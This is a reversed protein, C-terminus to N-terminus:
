ATSKDSARQPGSGMSKNESCASRYAEEISATAPVAKPQRTPDQGTHTHGSADGAKRGRGPANKGEGQAYLVYQREAEVQAKYRESFKPVPTKM